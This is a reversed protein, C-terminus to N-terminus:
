ENGPTLVELDLIIVVTKGTEEARNCMHRNVRVLSYNMLEQQYIMHNLQTSLISYSCTYLGDSLLLRFREMAGTQSPLCAKHGLIQLVPQPQSDEMGDCMM